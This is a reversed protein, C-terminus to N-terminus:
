KILITQSAHIQPQQVHRGGREVKADERPSEEPASFNGGGQAAPQFIRDAYKRPLRKQYLTNYITYSIFIVYFIMFTLMLIYM